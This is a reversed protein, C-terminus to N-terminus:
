SGGPKVCEGCDFAEQTTYPKFAPKLQSSKSTGPEPQQEPIPTIVFEQESIGLLQLALHDFRMRHTAKTLIDAIM